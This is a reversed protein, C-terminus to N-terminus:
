ILILTARLLDALATTMTLVLCTQFACGTKFQMYTITTECFCMLLLWCPQFMNPAPIHKQFVYWEMVVIWLRCSGTSIEPIVALWGCIAGSPQHTSDQLQGQLIVKFSLDLRQTCTDTARRSTHQTKGCCGKNLSSWARGDPRRRRARRNCFYCLWSIREREKGLLWWVRYCVHM